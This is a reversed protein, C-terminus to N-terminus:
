LNEYLYDIKKSRGTKFLLINFITNMLDRPVLFLLTFSM